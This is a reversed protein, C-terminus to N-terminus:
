DKLFEKWDMFTHGIRLVNVKNEDITYCISYNKVNIIRIFEM